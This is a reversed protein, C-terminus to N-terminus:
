GFFNRINSCIHLQVLAEIDEFYESQNIIRCILVLKWRWNLNFKESENRKSHIPLHRNLGSLLLLQYSKGHALSKKLFMTVGSTRSRYRFVRWERLHRTLAISSVLPFFKFSFWHIFSLGFVVCWIKAKAQCDIAETPATSKNLFTLHIWNRKWQNISLAKM